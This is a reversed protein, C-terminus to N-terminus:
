WHIELITKMDTSVITYRYRTLEFGIAPKGALMMSARSGEAERVLQASVKQGNPWTVTYPDTRGASRLVCPGTEITNTDDDFFMCDSNRYEAAAAPVAYLGILVALTALRIM